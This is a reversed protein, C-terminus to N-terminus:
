NKTVNEANQILQTQNVVANIFAAIEDTYKYGIGAWDHNGGPATLLSYSADLEKLKAAIFADGDLPLFGASLYPCFHHPASSYPVLNDADGHIFFGPIANEVTIYRADVVAGAFSIVAAIKPYDGLNKFDPHQAMYATNLIGEAGASSGALIIKNHDFSFDSNSELYRLADLIDATTQKFTEMKEAAPCDCGFGTPKGKRTLHYSISAVAYGKSAMTESFKTEEPNDRKGGSFGGGHVLIILPRSVDAKNEQATYFDLKLTDTYTHTSKVLDAYVQGIYKQQAGLSFVSFVLTAFICIQRIM